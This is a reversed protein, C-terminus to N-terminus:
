PYMGLFWHKSQCLISYSVVPKFTVNRLTLPFFFDKYKLKWLLCYYLTGTM